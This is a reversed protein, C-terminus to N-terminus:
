AWSARGLRALEEGRVGGLRGACRRPRVPDRRLSSLTGGESYVCWVDHEGDGGECPFHDGTHRGRAMNALMGALRRGVAALFDARLIGANVLGDGAVMVANSRATSPRALTSCRVM